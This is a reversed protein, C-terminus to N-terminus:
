KLFDRTGNALKENVCQGLVEGTETNVLRSLGNAAPEVRLPVSAAAALTPRVASCSGERELAARSMQGPTEARNSM